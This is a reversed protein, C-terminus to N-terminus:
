DVYLFENSNFIARTLVELGFQEVIAQADNLEQPSPDRLLALQYARTIQPVAGQGAEREVRKAFSQSMRLVFSNNLLVLAQLPTTTLARRPTTTSPDPCDFADLFGSRGGRTWTRYVTRRNFEPGIPDGPLYSYSGSRLVETCDRFGPGGSTLNLEGAVALMTDRVAEADLRRPAKRWLLRNDADRTADISRNVGGQRYAASLVIERHLQKLSFREAVLRGALWDLLEPHSPRTGSFGFDNPTDVLGQGFHHQWLRNVIVRVFLPNKPSTIWNALAVRGAAEPSDSPLGFDADPGVISAVGGPAVVDRPQRVDGRGLWRTPDSQRPSVAYCMRKLPQSAAAQCQMLEEILARRTAAAEENLASVIAGDSVFNAAAMSSLAVEEASLARDHLQARVIHGALMRNGGAPTHRMGFVVQSKGAEFRVPKGARYATGYPQGNRYGAITGDEHYVIAVHVLQKDAESEEPGAFDLTRAFNNSGAVWCRPEREAFVIADFVSGDLTQVSIAGGGSQKLGELTLWVELTKATLDKSLPLTAVHADRGDLALGRERIEAAGHATGHL